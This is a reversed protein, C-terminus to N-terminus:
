STRGYKLHFLMHVIPQFSSWIIFCDYPSLGLRRLSQLLTKLWALRFIRVKFNMLLIGYFFDFSGSLQDESYRLCSVGLKNSTAANRKDYLTTRLRGESDIELHLNFYLAAM